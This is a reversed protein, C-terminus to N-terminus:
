KPGMTGERRRVDWILGTGRDFGTFLRSGDLSFALVGARDDSPQLALVLRGTAVDILRITDQGFDDSHFIDATALTRGDPALALHCGRLAPIRGCVTGSEVDWACIWGGSGWGALIRGDPSFTGRWLQATWGGVQQEPTRSDALSRRQERGTLANLRLVHGDTLAVEVLSSNPGFRMAAVAPFPGDEGAPITWRVRGTGVEIGFFGINDDGAGEAAAAVLMRGDPSLAARTVPNLQVEHLTRGSAADYTAVIGDDNEISGHRRGAAAVLRGDQSFGVFIPLANAGLRTKVAMVPRHWSLKGTASEWLRVFGDAHGTVVRDGSPSWAASVVRGVPTTGDHHLRRGTEVEFLGVANDIPVAVLTGDPSFTPRSGLWGPLDITRVTAGTAADAVRLRGFEAVAIRRGDRSLAAYGYGFDEDGGFERLLKGTELDRIRVGVMPVIEQSDRSLRTESMPVLSVATSVLRRSDPTVGLFELLSGTSGPRGAAWVTRRLLRGDAIRWV